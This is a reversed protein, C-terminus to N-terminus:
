QAQFAGSERRSSVRCVSWEGEIGKLRQVRPEDFRLGSGAVLDRVTQSVFVQNSDALGAIRAAIHVAVGEVENGRRICEGTHVGVRVTLGLHPMSACISQACQIARAPGDFLAHFGDGTTKVETGRYTELELRVARHHADLLDAWQSDGMESALVTSGVIDTFMITTVVRDDALAENQGTLFRQVEEVTQEMGDGFPVHDDADLEVMHAGPIREAIYRRAEVDVIRDRSAHLILTPVSISPLVPRVDIALNMRQLAMASAPSAGARLFRAWWGRFRSNNALTPIRNEIDMATGWGSETSELMARMRGDSLGPPYDEAWARRAYSGMLILSTTRGPHTAAFLACMPGGESYGLLTASSSGVADLVARVDDMREELAPSQTVRDSLGSGRKDFLIVRCFNSLARFFRVVTPEDWFMDIQSVWGPVLILDHPGQGFVQYAIHTSGSKAYKTDPVM